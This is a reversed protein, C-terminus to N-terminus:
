SIDARIAGSSKKGTQEENPLASEMLQLLQRNTRSTEGLIAAARTGFEAILAASAECIGLFAM